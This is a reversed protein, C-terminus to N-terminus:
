VVPAIVRLWDRKVRGVGYLQVDLGIGQNIDTIGTLTGAQSLDTIQLNPNFSSWFVQENRRGIVRRFDFGWDTQGPEYSLSRFPIAIEAIWGDDVVRTRGEWIPDWEGLEVSNNLFLADARGGSSGLQFRYGNRRTLGPDLRVSVMDGTYLPGDREMSRMVIDAPVSDHAYVGFYLNNEDYLIRLETSETAPAGVNPIKQRLDTILTASAWAPDSLDADIIPADATDIRVAPASPRVWPASAASEADAAKAPTPPVSYALILIAPAFVAPM